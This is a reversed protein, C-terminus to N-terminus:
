NNSQMQSIDDLHIEQGSEQIASIETTETKEGQDTMDDEKIFGKIVHTALFKTSKEEVNNATVLLKLTCQMGVIAKIEKPLSNDQNYEKDLSLIDIINFHKVKKKLKAVKIASFNPDGISIQVISDTSLCVTLYTVQQAQEKLDSYEFLDFSNNPIFIDTEDLEKVKTESTFVIQRDMHVVRYKDKETYDKVTFNKILYIKGEEIIRTMKETLSEPVFAHMRCKKADLLLLNYEKFVVGTNNSSKWQRIVRVKVKWDARSTKVNRLSEFMNTSM